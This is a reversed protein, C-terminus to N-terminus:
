GIPVQLSQKKIANLREAIEEQRKLNSKIRTQFDRMFEVDISSAAAVSGALFSLDEILPFLASLAMVRLRTMMENATLKLDTRATELMEKLILLFESTIVLKLEKVREAKDRGSPHKLLAWFENSELATAKALAMVSPPRTKRSTFGFQIVNDLNPLTAQV